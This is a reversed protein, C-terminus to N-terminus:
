RSTPYIERVSESVVGTLKKKYFLCVILITLNIAFGSFTLISGQYNPLSIGFFDKALGLVLGNLVWLTPSVMGWLWIWGSPLLRKQYAYLILMTLIAAMHYHAHWTLALTASFVGLMTLLWASSGEAPRDKILLFLVFLTLLAGIAASVWGIAPNTRGGIVLAIMRWNIMGTPCNSGIGSAYQTWLTFLNKIGQLGSLGFSVAVVGLSAAIFGKLPKWAKSLLLVPLILILTQPKILLGGLWIGALLPKESISNRLWEGVCILLFIDIQGNVICNFIPYIALSFILVGSHPSHSLFSREIQHVFFLIYTIFGALNFITWIWFGAQLGIGKFLLFPLVFFSLVPFPNVQFGTQASPDLLGAGILAQSQLTKLSELSYVSAFGNEAALKGASWYALFDNKYLVGQQAWTYVLVVYFCVVLSAYLTQGEVRPLTFKFKNRLLSKM